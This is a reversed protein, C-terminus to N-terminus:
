LSSCSMDLLMRFGLGGEEEPLCLIKWKIWHRGRGGICGSRFLKAFGRQITNMVSMPPNMVSLCYIPVSQLVHKILVARGRFSLLKGKWSQLKCSIRSMIQQYYDKKKRMYFIPCGLYTFPFEKKLIGTAVEAMVVTILFEKICTFQVKKKTLRRTQCKNM